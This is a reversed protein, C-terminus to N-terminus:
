INLLFLSMTGNLVSHWCKANACFALSYFQIIHFRKTFHSTISVHVSNNNDIHIKFACVRTGLTTSQPSNWWGGMKPLLCLFTFNAALASLLGLRGLFQSYKPNDWFQDCWVIFHSDSFLHAISSFCRFLGLSLISITLCILPSLYKFIWSGRILLKPHICFHERQHGCAGRSPSDQRLLNLHSTCVLGTWSSLVERSMSGPRWMRTGCDIEKRWRDSVTCQTWDKRAM